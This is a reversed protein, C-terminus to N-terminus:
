YVFRKRQVKLIYWFRLNNGIYNCCGRASGATEEDQGQWQQRGHSWRGSVIATSRQGTDRATSGITLRFRTNADYRHILTIVILTILSYRQISIQLSVDLILVILYLVVNFVVLIISTQLYYLCLFACIWETFRRSACKSIAACRISTNRSCLTRAQQPAIIAHESKNTNTARRHDCVTTSFNYNCQLWHLRRKSSYGIRRALFTM